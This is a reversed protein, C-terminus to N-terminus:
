FICSFDVSFEGNKSVRKVFLYAELGTVEPNKWNEKSHKIGLKDIISDAM